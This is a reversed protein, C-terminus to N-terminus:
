TLQGGPRTADRSSRLRRVKGAHGIGTMGVGWGSSLGVDPWFRNGEDGQCVYMFTWMYGVVCGEVTPLWRHVAYEADLSVEERRSPAGSLDPWSCWWLEQPLADPHFEVRIEVNDLRRFATRRFEPPPRESYHFRTNFAISATEGRELPRPFVVDSRWIGPGVEAIPEAHGGREVDVDVESTDFKYSYRDLGDQLSEIVQITQHAVPLGDHGLRHLEHLMLFRYPGAQTPGPLESSGYVSWLTRTHEERVGFADIFWRLTKPTLVDGALGRRVRDLLARETDVRAEGTANVHDMLVRAIATQNLGRRSGREARQEWRRRYDRDRDLLQGLLAACRRRAFDDSNVSRDRGASARTLWM